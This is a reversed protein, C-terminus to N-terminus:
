EPLLGVKEYYRVTELNCGTRRAFEARQLGKVVAHNRKVFRGRSGTTAVSRMSPRAQSTPLTPINALNPNRRPLLSRVHDCRSGSGRDCRGRWIRGDRLPALGPLLMQDGGAADEAREGGGRAADHRQDQKAEANAAGPD